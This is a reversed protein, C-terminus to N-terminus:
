RTSVPQTSHLRPEPAPPCPVRSWRLLRGCCQGGEAEQFAVAWSTLGFVGTPFGSSVLCGLTAHSHDLCIGALFFIAFVFVFVDWVVSKLFQVTVPYVSNLPLFALDLTAPEWSSRLRLGREGPLRGTRGWHITLGPQDEWGMSQGRRRSKMQRDVRGEAEWCGRPQYGLSPAHALKSM